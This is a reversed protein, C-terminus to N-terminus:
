VEIGYITDLIHQHLYDVKAYFAWEQSSNTNSLKFRPNIKLSLNFNPESGLERSRILDDIMEYVESTETDPDLKFEYTIAPYNKRFSQGTDMTNSYLEYQLRNLFVSKLFNIITVLNHRLWLNEKQTRDYYEINTISNKIEEDMQKLNEDFLISAYLQLHTSNIPDLRGYVENGSEIRAYQDFMEQQYYFNSGAPGELTHSLKTKELKPFKGYRVKEVKPSSYDILINRLSRPNVQRPTPFRAIETTRISNVIDALQSSSHPGLIKFREILKKFLANSQLNENSLRGLFGRRVRFLNKTLLNVDNMDVFKSCWKGFSEAALSLDRASGLNYKTHLAVFVIFYPYIGLNHVTSIYIENSKQQDQGNTPSPINQSHETQLSLDEWVLKRRTQGLDFFYSTETELRDMAIELQEPRQSLYSPTPQSSPSAIQGNLSIIERLTLSQKIPQEIENQTLDVKDQTELKEFRRFEQLKYGDGFFKQLFSDKIKLNYKQAHIQNVLFIWYASMMSDLGLRNKIQTVQAECNNNVSRVFFIVENNFTHNVIINSCSKAIIVSIGPKKALNVIFDKLGLVCDVIFREFKPINPKRKCLKVEIYTTLLESQALTSKLNSIRKEPIIITNNEQNGTTPTSIYPKLTPTKKVAKFRRDIKDIIEETLVTLIEDLFFVQEFEVGLAGYERQSKSRLLHINQSGLGLDDLKVGLKQAERGIEYLVRRLRKCTENIKQNDLKKLKLGSKLIVLNITARLVDLDPIKDLDDLISILYNKYISFGLYKRNLQQTKIKDIIDATLKETEAELLAIIKDVIEGEKSLDISNLENIASLYERKLSLILDIDPQSIDRQKSIDTYIAPQLQKAISVM